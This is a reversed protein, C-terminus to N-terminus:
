KARLTYELTAAEGEFLVFGLDFMVMNSTVTPAIPAGNLRGTDAVYSLAAPLSVKYAAMSLPQTITIEASATASCATGDENIWDAEATIILPPLPVLTNTFTVTFATM